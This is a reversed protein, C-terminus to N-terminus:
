EQNIISTNADFLYTDRFRKISSVVDLQVTISTTDSETVRFQEEMQVLNPRGNETVVPVEFGDLRFLSANLVFELRTYDGAPLFSEFVLQKQYSQDGELLDLDVDNENYTNLTEYLIFFVSDSYMKGESIQIDFVDDPDIQYHTNVITIATDTSSPRFYVKIIGPPDSLEVGTSCGIYIFSLALTLVLFLRAMVISKLFGQSSEM